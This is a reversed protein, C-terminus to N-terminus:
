SADDTSDLRQRGGSNTDTGFLARAPVTADGVFNYDYNSDSGSIVM